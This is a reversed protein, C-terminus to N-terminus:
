KLFLLNNPLYIGPMLIEPQACAITRLLSQINERNNLSLSYMKDYYKLLISFASFLDGGSLFQITMKTNLGGLRKQIKLICEILEQKEYIGYTSVINKVREDFPIDLFYLNSKRMQQWFVKPIGVTGIHASEDEIWIENGDKKTQADDNPEDEPLQWLDLALLNEFMEAGPQSDEGLSGFASGRHNALGELDIIRKGRKKLEKLIETKGSGTYGGIVKLSYEKEFQQM